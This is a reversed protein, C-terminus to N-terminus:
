KSFVKGILNAIIKSSITFYFIGEANLILFESNFEFFIAGLYHLSNKSYFMFDVPTTQGFNVQDLNHKILQDFNEYDTSWIKKSNESSRIESVRSFLSM